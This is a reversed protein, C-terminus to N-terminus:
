EILQSVKCHDELKEGLTMLYKIVKICQKEATSSFVSNKSKDKWHLMEKIRSKQSATVGSEVMYKLISDADGEAAVHFPPNPILENACSPAPETIKSEFALLPERGVLARVLVYNPDDAMTVEKDQNDETFSRLTQVLLWWRQCQDIGSSKLLIALQAEVDRASTDKVYNKVDEVILPELKRARQKVLYEGREENKGWGQIKKWSSEFRILKDGPSIESILSKNENIGDM